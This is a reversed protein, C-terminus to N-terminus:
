EPLFRHLSVTTASLYSAYQTFHRAL